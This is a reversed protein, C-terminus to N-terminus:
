CKRFSEWTLV